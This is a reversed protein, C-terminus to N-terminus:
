LPVSVFVHLGDREFDLRVEAGAQQTLLRHLLKMGFGDKTPLETPPGDHENWDWVLAHPESRWRVVVRGKPDALAGHKSANTALEHIAMGLPVAIESPLLVKPGELVIRKGSEDDFPRLENMLLERFSAAQATDETLLLHTNALAGIRGLFAAEFEPLSSAGRATTSMIAQVTTLTNKVRHHLERILLSQQAEAQKRETIDYSIGIVGVLAGDEDHIPGDSVHAPFTSGDKRRLVIEGAWTQGAQLLAMVERADVEAGPASKLELVTRGLAEEATWGYLGEAFRNWYVVRGDLDTAIVAEQVADLLRAHFGPLRSLSPCALPRSSTPKGGNPGEVRESM